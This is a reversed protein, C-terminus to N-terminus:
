LLVRPIPSLNQRIGMARTHSGGSRSTVFNVKAAESETLRLVKVAVHELSHLLEGDCLTLLAVDAGDFVVRLGCITCQPDHEIKFDLNLDACRFLDRLLQELQFVAAASFM